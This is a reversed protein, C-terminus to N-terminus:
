IITQGQCDSGAIRIWQWWFVKLRLTQTLQTRFSFCRQLTNIAVKCLFYPNIAIKFFFHYTNIVAQYLFHYPFQPMSHIFIRSAAACPSLPLDLTWAWAAHGPLVGGPSGPRPGWQVWHWRPSSLHGTHPCPCLSHPWVLHDKHFPADGALEQRFQEWFGDGRKSWASWRWMHNKLKSRPTYTWWYRYINVCVSTYIYKYVCTTYMQPYM